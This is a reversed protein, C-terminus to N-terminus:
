NGLLNFFGVYYNPNVQLSYDEAEPLKMQKWGSLAELVMKEGNISVEIPLNFGEVTNGWRYNLVSDRIAYELIPIRTDRLYQDFVPSLDRGLKESIFEEIQKSHVTQHYFEKNLGRLAARWLSDNGAVQRLTHLLNGGKNYMDSSGRQYVDYTGMVPRDNRIGLRLGQVYENAAETGFHYDLYLSESYNTFGEHIWMDAVDAYTINNAFWEHGTEHIIIFDFKLGWGSGSLDRGRYGNQYDNGYTVSSQHEMGLYPAEVLKYGDEYFPYPGFWYEFADMMPKVQKFHEKAKELNERLVYYDLDLTGKEGEYKEGFHVYDGININVGYNNIPNSVFWHWTKTGDGPEDVARLRGNSVDMLSDPTTICILMSDPEDYPHDKNPWWVSAGIGQNSTAVFPKGNGDETWTFGGDWPPNQAEVPKGEYEIIVEQIEGPNQPEQLEIFYAIGEREYNLTKGKQSITVIELPEQLDIQMIQNPELVEYKVTNRGSIFKETINVDVELHYYVLNWWAREPTISGRLSDQRSFSSSYDANQSFVNTSLFLILILVWPFILRFKITKMYKIYTFLFHSETM